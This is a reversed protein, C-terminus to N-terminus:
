PKYTYYKGQNLIRFIANPSHELIDVANGMDGKKRSPDTAGPAPHIHDARIVQFGKKIYKTIQYSGGEVTTEHHSTSLLNVSNGQTDKMLTNTWEVSTNKDLFNM